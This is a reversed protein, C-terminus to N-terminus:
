GGFSEATKNAAQKEKPLDKEGSDEQIPVPAKSPKHVPEALSKKVCSGPLGDLWSPRTLFVPLLNHIWYRSYKCRGNGNEIALVPIIRNCSAKQFWKLLVPDLFTPCLIV